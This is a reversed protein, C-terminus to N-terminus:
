SASEEVKTLAQAQVDPDDGFGNLWNVDPEKRFWTVQRKAYRRTELQTSQIAQQLTLRGELVELAQKYGLSEFPKERGTCGASLLREVEEVLGSRFMERARADLVEYLLARDPNLGIKLTTYGDLGNGGENGPGAVPAPKRTLIRVELARILKQTDHPHIRAAAAPDLRTLLRHIPFPHIPVNTL